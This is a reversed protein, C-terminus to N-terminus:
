IQILEHNFQLNKKIHFKRIAERENSEKERKNDNEIFFYDTCLDIVRFLGIYRLFYPHESYSLYGENDSQLFASLRLDSRSISYVSPLLFKRYDNIYNIVPFNSDDNSGYCNVKFFRDEYVLKFIAYKEYFEEQNNENILEIYRHRLHEHSYWVDTNVNSEKMTEFLNKDNLVLDFYNWAQNSKKNIRKKLNNVKYDIGEETIIRMPDYTITKGFFNEESPKFVKTYLKRYYYLCIPKAKIGKKCPMEILPNNLDEIFNLAYLGVGQSIRCKNCYRNRWENIAENIKKEIFDDMFENYEKWLRCKYCVRKVDNIFQNEDFFWESKVDHLSEFFKAMDPLLKVMMQSDNYKWNGKTDKPINYKRFVIEHFFDKHFDISKKLTKRLQLGILARINNERMKLRIDKCVYKAVYSVARFDQVVGLFDGEKAIGYKTDEEYRHFIGKRRDEDEDFGQWYKRVLHRFVEPPILKYPFRENNAPELFFLVHYHPNNHFGRKGKGDGLEASVFYKFTNGYKRLLQKRFGGTFMDRLDEYDFCNMGYHEPLNKNSYTLTYFYTQGGISQCYKFQWYLRMEYGEIKTRKSQYTNPSSFCVHTKDKNPDFYKTTNKVKIPKKANTIMVLQIVVQFCLTLQTFTWRTPNSKLTYVCIKARSECM